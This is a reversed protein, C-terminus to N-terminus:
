FAIKFSNIWRYLDVDALIKSKWVDSTRLLGRHANWRNNAFSRVDQRQYAYRVGTPPAACELAVTQGRITLSNITTGVAEFGLFNDIGQGNYRTATHRELYEGPRLTDFNLIMTSGMLQVKPRGITWRNGRETEAAARAGVEAFQAVWHADPHVNNDFIEYAYEPTTLIGGGQECFQLQEDVVHWQNGPSDIRTNGGSQSVLMGAPGEIGLTKMLAQMDDKYKWLQTLYSGEEYGAASTGHVWYHWPVRVKKGTAIGLRRAEQHWFRLNNWITLYGVTGTNPDNDINEILQGSVGHCATAVPVQPLGLEERYRNLAVAIPWAATLGTTSPVADGFSTAPVSENYGQSRPQDLVVIPTNDGRQMGLLMLAEGPRQAALFATRPTASAPYNQPTFDGGVSLSQGQTGILDVADDALSGGGGGGGGSLGLIEAGREWFARSMHADFGGDTGSLWILIAQGLADTMLARGEDGDATVFPAVIAAEAASLRLLAPALAASVASAVDASSVGGGVIRLINISPDRELLLRRGPQLEGGTMQQDSETRIQINNFTTPGTNAAIPILTIREGANMTVGGGYPVTGTIANPTGGVNTVPPFASLAIRTALDAISAKIAITDESLQWWRGDVTQRHIAPNPTAPASALRRWTTVGSNGAVIIQDVGTPPTLTEINGATTHWVRGLIANALGVRISPIDEVLNWWTGNAAQFQNANPNTQAAILRYTVMGTTAGNNSASIIMNTGAPPTMAAVSTLTTMWVKGNDLGNIALIIENILQRLRVKQVDSNDPIVAGVSLSLEVAM